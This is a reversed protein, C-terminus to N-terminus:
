NQYLCEIVSEPTLGVQADKLAIGFCVLDINAITEIDSICFKSAESNYDFFKITYRRHITEMEISVNM